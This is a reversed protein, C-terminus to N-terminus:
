ACELHDTSLLERICFNIPLVSISSKIHPWDGFQGLNQNQLGQYIINEHVNFIQKPKEAFAESHTSRNSSINRSQASHGLFQGLHKNVSVQQM